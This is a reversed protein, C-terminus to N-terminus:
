GPMISKMEGIRRSLWIECVFHVYANCTNFEKPPSGMIQLKNEDSKHSFCEFNVPNFMIKFETVM